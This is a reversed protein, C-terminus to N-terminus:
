LREVEAGVQEAIALSSTLGPSEIGFLHIMRTGECRADVPDLVLQFDVAREGPGSLKPRLGAYDPELANDLLSPQPPFPSIALREDPSYLSYLLLSLYISLFLFLFLFLFLYVSLYISLYISLYLTCYSFSLGAELGVWYRRVAEYMSESRAPDVEFLKRHAREASDEADGGGGGGGRRLIREVDGRSFDIWEVDPGFRTQGALDITAHTGLGATNKEPVPYILRSFPSAGSALKFYNGKAFHPSPRFREGGVPHQGARTHLPTCVTGRNNLELEQSQLPSPPLSPTSSLLVSCLLAACRMVDCRMVDCRTVDCRMVDCRMVDCRM